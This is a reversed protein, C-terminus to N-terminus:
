DPKAHVLVWCECKYHTSYSTGLVVRYIKGKMKMCRALKERNREDKTTCDYGQELTEIVKEM